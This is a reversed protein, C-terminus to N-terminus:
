CSRSDTTAMTLDSLPRRAWSRVSRRFKSGAVPLPPTSIQTGILSYLMKLRLPYRNANLFHTSLPAQARLAAKRPDAAAQCASLSNAMVARLLTRTRSRLNCAAQALSFAPPGGIGSIRTRAVSRSNGCPGTAIGSPETSSTSIRPGVASWPRASCGCPPPPKRPGSRDWHRPARGRRCSTCRCCDAAEGPDGGSLVQDHRPGWLGVIIEAARDLADIECAALNSVTTWAIRRAHAARVSRGPTRCADCRKHNELRPLRRVRRSRHRRM